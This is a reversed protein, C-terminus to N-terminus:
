SRMLALREWDSDPSYTSGYCSGFMRELDEDEAVSDQEVVSEAIYHVGEIDGAQVVYCESM